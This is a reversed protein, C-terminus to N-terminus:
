TCFWIVPFLILSANADSNLLLLTAKAAYTLFAYKRNDKRAYIKSFEFM